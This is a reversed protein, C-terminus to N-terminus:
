RERLLGRLESVTPAGLRTLLVSGEGDTVITAPLADVIVTRALHQKVSERDDEPITALLEYPPELKAAYDQLVEVGEAEDVPVGLMRLQGADFVSRLHELEPLESRCAACWTAMAVYMVLDVPEDAPAVSPLVLRAEVDQSGEDEAAVADGLPRVYAEAVFAEGSPSTAPDEYVTLLTGAPVDSTQQVVGSPWRVSVTDAAERAGIGIPLTASSQAGLGEGCRHERTLEQEGLGVTVRAGYGDRASLGDGPAAAHNGGVFRLAIMGHDAPGETWRGLENRYLLTLPANANVVVMDLWGDRDFDSVAVSRGDAPSDVGGVGSVEAFQRGDRNLFLRNREHGSQSAGTRSERSSIGFAGSIGGGASMEPRLIFGEDDTRM